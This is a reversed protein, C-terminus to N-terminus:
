GWRSIIFIGLLVVLAGIIRGAGIQEGLFYYSLAFVILYQLAGFPYLLSLDIRSLLILWFFTGFVYMALGAVIRWNLALSFILQMIRKSELTHIQGIERMGTKLLIQASSSLLVLFLITLLNRGVIMDQNYCIM